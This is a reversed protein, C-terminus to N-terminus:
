DINHSAMFSEVDAKDENPVEVGSDNWLKGYNDKYINGIGPVFFHAFGADNLATTQYPFLELPKGEKGKVTNKHTKEWAVIKDVTTKVKAAEAQANKRDLANEQLVTLREIWWGELETVITFDFTVLHEVVKKAASTYNQSFHKAKISSTTETEVEAIFAGKASYNGDFNVILSVYLGHMAANQDLDVLDTGSFFTGMGHHTHIQGIKVGELSNVGDWREPNNEPNRYDYVPYQEFAADYHLSPDYGTYHPDGIDCPFFGEVEAELNAIDNLGGKFRLMLIGSWETKGVGVHWFNLAALVADPIFLVAEEQLHLIPRKPKLAEATKSASATAM